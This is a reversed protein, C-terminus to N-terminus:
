VHHRGCKSDPGSCIPVHQEPYTLILDTRAVFASSIYSSTKHSSHLHPGSYRARVGLPLMVVAVLPPDPHPGKVTAGDKLRNMLIQRLELSLCHSLFSFLKKKNIEKLDM